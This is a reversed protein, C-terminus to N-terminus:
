EMKGSLSSKSPSSVEDGEEVVDEDVEDSAEVEDSGDGEEEDVVPFVSCSTPFSLSLLFCLSITIDTDTNTGNNAMAQIM